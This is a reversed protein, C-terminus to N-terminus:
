RGTHCPFNWHSNVVTKKGDMRPGEGTNMRAMGALHRDHYHAPILLTLPQGMAEAESYGFITEAGRNWGVINGVSDASIIAENASQAVARYRAESERLAIEAQKQETINETLIVVRAVQGHADQIAYFHQSVWEAAGPTYVAYMM